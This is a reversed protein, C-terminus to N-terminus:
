AMSLAGSNFIQLDLSERHSAFFRHTQATRLERHLHGVTANNNDISRIVIGVASRDEQNGCDKASM